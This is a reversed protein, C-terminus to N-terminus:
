PNARPRSRRTVLGVAFGLFATLLLLKRIM